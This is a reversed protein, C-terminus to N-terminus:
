KLEIVVGEWPGLHLLGKLKEGDRSRNTSILIEGDLDSTEHHFKTMNIAVVTKKGRKWTWVSPMAGLSEYDGLMLDQNEQRIKILDRTFKWTTDAGSTQEEVNRGELKGYPLWPRVGEQTFGAGQAVRWPMPTRGRDRGTVVPWYKRGVPDKMRWYPITVNEMGIEDGYYLVPTGKLGLLIMMGCRTKSEDGGGWRSPFRSYEDHNSSTWVPWDPSKLAQETEYVVMRLETPNFKARLFNFNFALELEDQDGYFSALQNLKYTLTTEGLLLKDGPYSDTLRRWRKLIGHIAPRNITYLPRQGFLLLDPDDDRTWRPNDRLQEDKILMNFVDIRFGDVGKDLWFRMVNDFEEQVVPNRWNLDAQQNFFNHLYYQDTPKHYTWASKLEFWSKWNNPPKGNPKPDAWVYYDRYKADKGTLANIFWPHKISTHNPVFDFLVKIGRAHAESLLREYDAMTGLTPDINYYDVVDYGWDVNASVTVPSLWIGSVGLEKLYDLKDIVGIIDGVGDGTSDKFSRVYIQYIIGTQWWPAEKPTAKPGKVRKVPTTKHTPM